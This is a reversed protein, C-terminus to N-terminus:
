RGREVCIANYRPNAAVVRAAAAECNAKGNFEATAVSGGGNTSFSGLIILIYMM